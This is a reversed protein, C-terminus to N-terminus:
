TDQHYRRSSFLKIIKLRFYIFSLKRIVKARGECIRVYFIRTKISQYTKYGSLRSRRDSLIVFYKNIHNHYFLIFINLRIEFNEPLRSHRGIRTEAAVTCPSTPHVPEARARNKSRRRCNNCLHSM